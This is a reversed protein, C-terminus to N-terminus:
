PMFLLPIEFTQIVRGSSVDWLKLTKDSSGSLALQGDPSFVVAYVLFHGEFTRIDRGSSLINWWKLPIVRGSSVKWLKLTKDQSGSLALKGDPSFAVANVWKSHGEFTRIVDGSSVEWLKVTSDWSGSLALKGDPSFAV